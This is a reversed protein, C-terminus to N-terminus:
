FERANKSWFDRCNRNCRGNDWFFGYIITFYITGNRVAVLGGDYKAYDLFINTVIPDLRDAIVKKKMFGYAIRQIGFTLNKYTTKEGKWLDNATESYRCFPGEMIQPFFSIFLALRGINRDAKIKEKYVDLIYSLAQLTYFSIGIPIMFKAIELKTEIKLVELLSNINETIFPTYKLIILIGIMIVAALTLIKRQTRIAIQRISKKKEKEASKLDEDRKRQIKDIWLGFLYMLLTTILLYILLKGSISWFFVYSAVLLVKWRHKQPVINYLIIIAPLFAGIFLLHFYNM